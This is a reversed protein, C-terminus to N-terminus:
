FLEIEGEEVAEETIKGEAVLREYACVQNRGNYKAFYLAKDAKDVVASPMEGAGLPVFGVSVTVQGVKPFEFAEVNARFRELVRLADEDEVDSLLVVFEEGGYRFLLDTVRFSEEMLRGFLLLVEDGYLHGYRDNIRKFFDIDLVAIHTYHGDSRRRGERETFRMVNSIREDFSQRNFLGTLADREKKDLLLLHNAYIRVLYDLYTLEEGLEQECELVLLGCVGGVGHVPYVVRQGGSSEYDLVVMEEQEFCRRFSEEAILPQDTIDGPKLLDRYHLEELASSAVEHGRQRSYIEFVAVAHAPFLRELLEVLRETIVRRDHVETLQVLAELCPINIM